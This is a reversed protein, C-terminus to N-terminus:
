AAESLVLRRRAAKRIPMAAFTDKVAETITVGALAPAVRRGGREWLGAGRLMLRASVPPLYLAADRREV